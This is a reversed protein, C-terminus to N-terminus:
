ETPDEEVEYEIKERPAPHQPLGQALADLVAHAAAEISGDEGPCSGVLSREGHPSLLVVHALVVRLGGVAVACAEDLHLPYQGPTLKRVGELTAAAIVRLRNARTALRDVTAQATRGADRLCVTARLLEGERTLRVSAIEIRPPTVSDSATAETECCVAASGAVSVKQYPVRIGHKAFITTVVDRVVWKPRRNPDAVVHVETIEGDEAQIRATHVGILCELDAEMKRIREGQM